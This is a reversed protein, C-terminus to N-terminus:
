SRWGFFGSRFFCFSFGCGFGTVSDVIVTGSREIASTESSDSMTDASNVLSGVSCKKNAASAAKSSLERFVRMESDDFIAM